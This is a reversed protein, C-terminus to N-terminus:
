FIFYVRDKAIVEKVLFSSLLGFERVGAKWASEWDSFFGLLTTGSVVAFQHKHLRLWKKRNKEFFELEEELLFTKKSKNARVKRQRSGNTGNRYKGPM